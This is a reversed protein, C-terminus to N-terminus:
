TCIRLTTTHLTASRYHQQTDHQQTNGRITCLTKRQVTSCIHLTTQHLTASIYHQLHTSKHHTCNNYTGSYLHSINNQTINNHAISNQAIHCFHVRITHLTTRHVTTCMHLRTTHLTASRYHQLHTSNNQAINYIHLTTTHWTTKHMRAFTYNQQTDHQPTNGQVPTYSQKILHTICIKKKLLTINAKELDRWLSQDTARRIHLDRETYIPRKENTYTVKIPRKEFTYTEWFATIPRTDKSLRILWPVWTLSDHCM